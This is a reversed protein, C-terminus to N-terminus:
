EMFSFVLQQGKTTVKEIEQELVLCSWLGGIERVRCTFRSEYDWSEKVECVECVTGRRRIGPFNDKIRIKDGIKLEM